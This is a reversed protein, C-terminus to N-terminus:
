LKHWTTEDMTSGNKCLDRLLYADFWPRITSQFDNLLKPWDFFLSVYRLAPALARRQKEHAEKGKSRHDANSVKPPLIALRGEVWLIGEGLTAKFWARVGHPKPFSYIGEGVIFSIARPDTISLVQHQHSADFRLV